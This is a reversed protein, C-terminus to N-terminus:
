RLRQSLDVEFPLIQILQLLHSLFVTKLTHVHVYPKACTRIWTMNESENCELVEESPGEEVVYSFSTEAKALISSEQTWSINLLDM